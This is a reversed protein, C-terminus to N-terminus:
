FIKNVLPNRRERANSQQESLPQSYFKFSPYLFVGGVLLAVFIFLAKWYAKHM